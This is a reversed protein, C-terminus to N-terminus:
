FILSALFLSQASMRGTVSISISATYNHMLTRLQFIQPLNMCKIDQFHVTILYLICIKFGCLSDIYNYLIGSIM